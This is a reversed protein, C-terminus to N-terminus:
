PVVLRLEESSPSTGCYNRAIVRVYSAGQPLAVVVRDIGSAVPLVLQDNAGQTAGAEVTYSTVVQPDPALQWRLSAGTHDVTAQLGEVPPPPATCDLAVTTPRHRDSRAVIYLSVLVIAVVLVRARTEVASM